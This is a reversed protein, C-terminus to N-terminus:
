VTQEDPKRRIFVRKFKKNGKIYAHKKNKSEILGASTDKGNEESIGIIKYKSM